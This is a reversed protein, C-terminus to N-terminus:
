FLRISKRFGAGDPSEVTFRLLIRIDAITGEVGTFQCIIPNTEFRHTINVTHIIKGDVYVEMQNVCPDDFYLSFERQKDKTGPTRPLEVEMRYLRWGLRSDKQYETQSIEIPTLTNMDDEAIEMLPDIRENSFASVNLQTIYDNKSTYVYDPTPVSNIRPTFVAEELGEGHVRISLEKANPLVSIIAQCKGFYLKREPLVESEFSKPDGNGVGLLRADGDIEFYLKNMATPVENGLEDVVSCNLILTDTGSDDVSQANPQLIIKKPEGATVIKDEAVLKGQNYAKAQLTGKEFPVFWEASHCCDSPKKGLSKDNLILEVEECNSALVVKIEKGEAFDWRSPVIHVMPTELYCAQHFYFGEKPFGCLDMSGYSTIVHQPMCPEGRHDFATWAVSGAYYDRARICDWSDRITKGWPVAEEDCDKYVFLKERDTEYYGRTTRCSNNEMGMLIANPNEKHIRDIHGYGYNIGCVDMELGAGEITSGHMAGTFLHTHDLKQVRTKMRKYMKGGEETNQLPEENFLCYMIISPHNRDRRTIGDLHELNEKSQEFHRNEDIMLVGLEDCADLIERAPNNHGSRYLNAGMEKFKKVRYYQVKDPVAVGVCAHDQHTAAGKIKVYRGNLFFGKNPDFHFYKYGFRVTESDVVKGERLIEVRVHYLNPEDIDWLKPNRIKFSQTLIKKSQPYLSIEKSQVGTIEKDNRLLTARVQCKSGLYDSNEIETKISTKWITKDDNVPEGWVFVGNHAVHSLADKVYLKVHRYIGGGDYTWCEDISSDVHVALVNVRGDTYVRDTVDICHETYASFTRYIQSGNLYIESTMAIGEFCLFIQKGAFEAELSFSKRYWAKQRAHRHNSENEWSLDTEVVYDHPLNVRRWSADDFNKSAPGSARGAKVSSYVVKHSDSQKQESENDISFSWDLDMNLMRRM